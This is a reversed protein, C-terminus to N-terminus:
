RGCPSVSANCVPNPMTLLQRVEPADALGHVSGCEGFYVLDTKELMTTDTSDPVVIYGTFATKSETMQRAFLNKKNATNTKPILTTNVTGRAPYRAPEASKGGPASVAVDHPTLNILKRVHM